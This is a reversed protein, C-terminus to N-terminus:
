GGAEEPVRSRGIAQRRVYLEFVVGAFGGVITAVVFEIMLAREIVHEEVGPVLLLSTGLYLDALWRAVAWVGAVAVTTVVVFLVAFGASMKVGTFLHLEVAVILAFAAVSVYTTALGFQPVPLVSRGLIPLGAALLIEWPLMVRPSRRALPPLLSVAVVALAFGGWLTSGTLIAVGATAVMVAVLGWALVANIGADRLLHGVDAM